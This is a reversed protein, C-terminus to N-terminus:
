AFSLHRNGEIEQVIIQALVPAKGNKLFYREKM